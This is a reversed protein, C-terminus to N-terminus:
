LIQLRLLFAIPCSYITGGCTTCYRGSKLLCTGRLPRRDGFVTRVVNEVQFFFPFSTCLGDSNPFCMHWWVFSFTLSSTRPQPTSHCAKGHIFANQVTQQDCMQYYSEGAAKNETQNGVIFNFPFNCSSRWSSEIIADNPLLKPMVHKMLGVSGTEIYQYLLNSHWQHVRTLLCHLSPIICLQILSENWLM